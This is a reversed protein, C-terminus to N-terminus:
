WQRFYSLKDRQAARAQWYTQSEPELRRQLADRGLVRFLLAFPTFV